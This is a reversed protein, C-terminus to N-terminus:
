KLISSVLYVSSFRAIIVIILEVFIFVLSVSTHSMTFCTLGLYTFIFAEAINSMLKTVM